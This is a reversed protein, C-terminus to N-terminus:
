AMLLLLVAGALVLVVMSGRLVWTYYGRTATNLFAYVVAILVTLLVLSVGTRVWSERQRVASRHEEVIKPLFAQAYHTIQTDSADVLLAHQWVSGYPKRLQQTFQDKVGTGRKMQACLGGLIQPEPRIQRLVFVEPSPENGSNAELRELASRVLPLLSRAAEAIAEQEAEGQTGCLKKSRSVISEQGQRQSARDIGSEVWPKNVYRVTHTRKGAPGTLTLTLHGEKRGGPVLSRGAVMLHVDMEAEMAAPASSTTPIGQSQQYYPALVKEHHELFKEQSSKDTEVRSTGLKARLAQVVAPLVHGEMWDDCSVLVQRPEQGPPLVNEWTKVMQRAGAVAASRESPYLDAEFDAQSADIWEDSPTGTGTSEGSEPEVPPTRGPSIDLPKDAPTPSPKPERIKRAPDSAATDSELAATEWENEGTYQGMVVGDSSVHLSQNGDTMSVGNGDIVISGNGDQLIVDNNRSVSVSSDRSRLIVGNNRDVSVHSRAPAVAQPSTSYSFASPHTQTTLSRSRQVRFVGLFGIALIPITVGTGLIWRWPHRAKTIAAIIGILPILLFLIGFWSMGFSSTTHEIM